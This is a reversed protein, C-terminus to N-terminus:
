GNHFPNTDYNDENISLYYPKKSLSAPKGLGDMEFIIDDSAMLEVPTMLPKEKYKPSGDPNKGLFVLDAPMRKSLYDATFNDRVMWHKIAANGVFTEWVAPYLNKLQNLDQIVPWLTVNYGALYGMGEEFETLRGMTVFEDMLMVVKRDTNYNQTFGRMMSGIVLRVWASMRKLDDPNLCIFLATKNQSINSIKFDSVQMSQRIAEDKFIGTAVSANAYVDTIAKGGETLQQLISNAEESIDFHDNEVMQNLLVFRDVGARRLWRYLTKITKEEQDQTMMHSIYLAILDSAADSFYSNAHKESQPPLIAFRIMDVYKNFDKSKANFLDFPNFRANGFGAIERIEFPNICIVNYGSQKLYRGSIAINEGKPDLIVFSASGSYVLYRSLLTHLIISTGKGSRAYGCTLIHGKENWLTELGGSINIGGVASDGQAYLKTKIEQPSAWGKVGHAKKLEDENEKKVVDVKYYKFTKGLKNIIYLPVAFCIAITITSLFTNHSLFYWTNYPAIFSTLFFIIFFPAAFFSLGILAWRATPIAENKEDMRRDKYMYNRLWQPVTGAKIHSFM